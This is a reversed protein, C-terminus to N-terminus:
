LIPCVFSCDGSMHLSHRTSAVRGTSLIKNFQSLNLVRSIAIRGLNKWSGKLYHAAALAHGPNSAAGQVQAEQFPNIVTVDLAADKDLSITCYIQLM